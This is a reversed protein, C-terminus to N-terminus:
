RINKAAAACSRAATRRAVVRVEPRFYIRHSDAAFQDRMITNAIIPNIEVATIDRSGGALARAVDYGGGAGIM